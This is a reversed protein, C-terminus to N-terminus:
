KNKKLNFLSNIIKKVIIVLLVTLIFSLVFFLYSNLNFYTNFIIMPIRQLIYVWFLNDGFWKLIKNNLQVKLTLLIIAICFVISFLEYYFVNITIYKRIVYLSLLTVIFFLIYKINGTKKDFIFKNISDKYYSYTMGFPYCLITNYWWDQKYCRLFLILIFSLIWTLVVSAKKNNLSLAIYSILYLVLIDFIYWNSNGLSEWGIFSLITQKIPITKNIIVFLILYLIIVLDFNILTKIIRKKPFSELYKEGKNKYSEFVGYGSYFLFMAVVLQGMVIVFKNIILSYSNYAVYGLSHSFMIFLIFIGKVATTNDKGIYENNKDKIFFKNNFICLFLIILLYLDM